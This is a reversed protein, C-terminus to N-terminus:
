KGVVNLFLVQGNNKNIDLVLVGGNLGPPELLAVRWTKDNNISVVILESESNRKATMKNYFRKYFYIQAIKGAMKEDPILPLDFSEKRINKKNYNIHLKKLCEKSMKVYESDLKSNEFSNSVLDKEQSKVNLVSFFLSLVIFLLEYWFKLKMM